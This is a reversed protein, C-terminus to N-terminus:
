EPMMTCSITMMFNRLKIYQIVATGDQYGVYSLLAIRLTHFSISASIRSSPCMRCESLGYLRCPWQTGQLLLYKNKTPQAQQNVHHILHPTVAETLLEQGLMPDRLSYVIGIAIGIIMITRSMKPRQGALISSNKIQLGLSRQFSRPDQFKPTTQSRETPTVKVKLDKELM